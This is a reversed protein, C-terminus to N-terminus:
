SYINKSEELQPSLTPLSDSRLKTDFNSSYAQYPLNSDTLNDPSVNM